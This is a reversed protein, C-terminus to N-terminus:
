RGSEWAQGNLILALRDQYTHRGGVILQHARSALTARLNDDNCLIITKEIMTDLSDFYLVARGEEGFIARHEETDETLMCAGVAPVEFTRMCSGDRNARRVLCLGVKTTSLALRLTRVDALGRAIARTEKFREWYGGYLALNIGADILAKIYPIRDPDAGGAFVVDSQSVREAENVGPEERFFLEPDYAFPVYLAKQCGISKLDSIAAQRPSYIESYVPLAKMFWPARHARNWPDDTLYNITRVGMYTINKIAEATIPAIGTTLFVDPKFDQCFEVVQRSFRNLHVPRHGMLHWSIRRRWIAARYALSYDLIRGEIDMKKAARLFSEGVHTGGVGGVILLKVPSKKVLMQRCRTSQIRISNGPNQCRWLAM